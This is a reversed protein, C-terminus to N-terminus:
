YFTNDLSLDAIELGSITNYPTEPERLEYSGNTGIVERGIAKIGLKEKKERVFVETRGRLGSPLHEVFFASDSRIRGKVISYIFRDFKIGIL